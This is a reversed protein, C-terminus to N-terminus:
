VRHSQIIKIRNTLRHTDRERVLYICRDVQCKQIRTRVGKWGCENMRERERIMNPFDSTDNTSSIDIPIENTNFTARLRHWKTGVHQLKLYAVCFSLTCYVCLSLRVDLAVGGDLPHNENAGCNASLTKVKEQDVM